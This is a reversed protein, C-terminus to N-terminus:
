YRFFPQCLKEKHGYARCRNCQVVFDYRCNARNHNTEGCNYCGSYTAQRPNNYRPPSNEVVESYLRADPLRNQHYSTELARLHSIINRAFARVGTDNLHLGDYSVHHRPDINSNDIFSWSHKRTVMEIHANIDNVKAEINVPGRRRQIISSLTIRKVSPCTQLLHTGVSEIKTVIESTDNDEVDNTGVHLIVEKAELENAMEVAADCVDNVKAGPIPKCAIRKSSSLGHPRIRRLMSDGILIADCKPKITNQNSPMSNSRVQSWDRGPSGSEGNRPTMPSSQRRDPPSTINEYLPQDCSHYVPVQSTPRPKVGTRDTDSNGDRHNDGNSHDIPPKGHTPSRHNKHKLIYENLQCEYARKARANIADPEDPPSNRATPDTSKTQDDHDLTQSAKENALGKENQKAVLSRLNQLDNALEDVRKTLCEHYQVCCDSPNVFPGNESSVIPSEPAVIIDPCSDNNHLSLKPSVPEHVISANDCMFSSTMNTSDDLTAQSGHRGNQLSLLSYHRAIEGNLNPYIIQLEGTVYQDEDLVAQEVECKLIHFLATKLSNITVNKPLKSQFDRTGPTGHCSNTKLKTKQKSKGM